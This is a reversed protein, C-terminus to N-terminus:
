GVKKFLGVWCLPPLRRGDNTYAKTPDFRSKKIYILEFVKERSISRITEEKPVFEIFPNVVQERTLKSPGAHGTDQQEDKETNGTIVLFFGGVQLLDYVLKIFRKDEKGKGRVAHFCQLDFIFDFSSQHNPYKEVNLLSFIDEQLWTIKSTEKFPEKKRAINENKKCIEIAEAVIDVGTVNIYGHRQLYICNRGSGCGLEVANGKETNIHDQEELLKVLHSCPEESDWPPPFDKQWYRAWKEVNSLM